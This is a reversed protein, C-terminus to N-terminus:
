RPEIPKPELIEIEAIRTFDSGNYTALATVGYALVTAEIQFDFVHQGRVGSQKVLSLWRTSTETPIPLLM